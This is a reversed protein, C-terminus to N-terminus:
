YTLLTLLSFLSMDVVEWRADCEGCHTHTQGPLTATQLAGTSSSSLPPTPLSTASPIVSSSLSTTSSCTPSVLQPDSSVESATLTSSAPSSVLPVTQAPTPSTLMTPPLSSITASPLTSPVSAAIIASVTQSQPLTFAQPQIQAQGHVQAQVQGQTQSVAQMGAQSLVQSQLISQSVMTPPPSSSFPPSLSVSPVSSPPSTSSPPPLSADLVQEHAQNINSHVLGVAPDVIPSVTGAQSPVSAAVFQLLPHTSHISAPATSPGPDFQNQTQRLESFAQQLSVPGASQSLGVSHGPTQSLAPASAPPVSLFYLCLKRQWQASTRQHVGAIEVTALLVGGKGTEVPPAPTSPSAPFMPQFM